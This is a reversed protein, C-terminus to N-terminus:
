DTTQSCFTGLFRSDGDEDYFRKVKFVYTSMDVVVVAKDDIITYISRSSKSRHDELTHQTLSSSQHLM